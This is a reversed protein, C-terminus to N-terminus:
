RPPAKATCWRRDAPRASLRGPNNGGHRLYERIASPPRHDVGPSKRGPEVACSSIGASTKTPASSARSPPRVAARDGASTCWDFTHSSAQRRHRGSLRGIERLHVGILLTPAPKGAFAAQYGVLREGIYVTWSHSRAQERHRGSLRGIERLHVYGNRCYRGSVTGGKCRTVKAFAPTGAWGLPLLPRRGM